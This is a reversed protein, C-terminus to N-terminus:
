REVGDRLIGYLVSELLHHDAAGAYDYRVAERCYQLGVAYEHDLAADYSFLSRVIFQKFLAACILFKVLGLEALGYFALSCPFLASQVDPSQRGAVPYLPYAFLIDRRHVPQSFGVRLIVFVQVFDRRALTKRLDDRTKRVPGRRAALVEDTEKICVIHQHGDHIEDRPIRFVVVCEDAWRCSDSCRM